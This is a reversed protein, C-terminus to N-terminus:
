QKLKTEVADSVCIQSCIYCTLKDFQTITLKPYKPSSLAVIHYEYVNVCVCEKVQSFVTICLLVDINLGMLSHFGLWFRRLYRVQLCRSGLSVCLLSRCLDRKIVSYTMKHVFLHKHARREGPTTERRVGSWETTRHLPYCCDENDSGESFLDWSKSDFRRSVIAKRRRCKASGLVRVLSSFSYRTM